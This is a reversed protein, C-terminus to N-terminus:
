KSPTFNIKQEVCSKQYYFSVVGKVMYDLKVRGLKIPIQVRGTQDTRGYYVQESTKFELIVSVDVGELPQGKLNKVNTELYLTSYQKPSTTSLTIECDLEVKELEQAPHFYHVLQLIANEKMLVKGYVEIRQKTRVAPYGYESLVAILLEYDLELTDTPDIYLYYKGEHLIVTGVEVNMGYLPVAADILDEFRDFEFLVDLCEDLTVRMEVFDNVMEEDMEKQPSDQTVFIIVGQAQLSLIQVALRGEAVFGLEKSAEQMVDRFLSQVEPINKWIDEKSLGRELLDDSPIFVKFKNMTLRELKM